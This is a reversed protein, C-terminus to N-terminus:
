KHCGLQFEVSPNLARAADPASIQCFGTWDLAILVWTSENLWGDCRYFRSWAGLARRLASTRRYQEAAVTRAAVAAHHKAATHWAAPMHACTAHCTLHRVLFLLLLM